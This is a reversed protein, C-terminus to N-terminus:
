GPAKGDFYIAVGAGTLLGGFSAIVAAFGVCWESLGAPMKHGTVTAWFLTFVLMLLGLIVVGAGIVLAMRLPNWVANAADETAMVRIFSAM